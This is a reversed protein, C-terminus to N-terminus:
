LMLEMALLPDLLISLDLLEISFRRKTNGMIDQLAVSTLVYLHIRNRLAERCGQRHGRQSRTIYM